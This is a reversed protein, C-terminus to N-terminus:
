HEDLEVMIRIRGEVKPCVGKAWHVGFDEAAEECLSPHRDALGALRWWKRIVKRIISLEKERREDRPESAPVHAEDDESDSLGEHHGNAKKEGIGEHGNIEEKPQQIGSRKRKPERAPHAKEVGNQVEGWHNGLHESWRKWKGMVRLSMFYQRLLQSILHGNEDNVLYEEEDKCKLMAFGDGGQTTYFRTVLKYEKEEKLDEGQIRVERVRPKMKPDFAMKIGSVQPFRGELKPWESVAHQLAELLRKGSVKVMVTPDEFPFCDVVDRLKLVGPPYVVDGRFTGGVILACDGAYYNRLVDAVFNGLNSERVRVTTFRADLPAATYGIPKDLKASLGASLKQVAKVMELDQPVASVVDRRTITFEWQGKKKKGNSDAAGEDRECKERRRAEIYSMQRFDTGSCLVHTGNIKKWRYQHDHGGLILDVDHCEEALRLDNAERQHALVVIMDAGQERLIPSYKNATESASVFILDPPLANVTSLWEQEALGILGIKLGTSAHTLLHTPQLM